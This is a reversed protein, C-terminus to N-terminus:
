PGAGSRSFSRVRRVPNRAIARPAAQPSGIGDGLVHLVGEGLFSPMTDATPSSDSPSGGYRAAQATAPRSSVRGM